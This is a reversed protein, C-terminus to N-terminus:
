IEEYVTISKTGSYEFVEVVIHKNPFREKFSMSWFLRIANALAEIQQNIYTNKFDTREEFFDDVDYLNMMKEIEMKNNRCEKKWGNYIYEDYKDKLLFCDDKIIIEPYFFKSFGLALQINANFGVFNWWTFKGNNANKWEVFETVISEDFLNMNNIGKQCNGHEPSESRGISM